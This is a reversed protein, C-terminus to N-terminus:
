KTFTLIEYVVCINKKITDIIYVMSLPRDMQFENNASDKENFLNAKAKLEFTTKQKM